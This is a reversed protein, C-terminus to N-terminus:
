RVIEIRSSGVIRSIRTRLDVSEAYILPEIFVAPHQHRGRLREALVSLLVAPGRSRKGVCGRYRHQADHPGDRPWARRLHWPFQRACQRLRARVDRRGIPALPQDVSDAPHRRVRFMMRFLAHTPKIDVIRYQPEPLVRVLENDFSEMALTGWYDDSWLFGGKLLYARLGAVEADTFRATGADEITVFACSFLEPSDARVVVHNPTGDPDQSVRTKTLESLRIMFNTDADPYDTWWGQGGYESRVSTYFLRCFNFAGDFSEPTAFKASRQFRRQFQFYDQAFVSGALTLAVLGATIVRRM